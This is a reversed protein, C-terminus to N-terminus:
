WPKLDFNSSKSVVTGPKRNMTEVLKVSWQDVRKEAFGYWNFQDVSVLTFPENQRDAFKALTEGTRGDKLRIEISVYSPNTQNLATAALGYLPIYGAAKLLVKNPTLETLAMEVRLTDFSQTNYSIKFRKKPDTIFANSFASRTYMALKKIDKQIEGTRGLEQWENSELVHSTDVPAIAVKKYKQWNVGPKIWGMEFPLDGRITMNTQDMFGSPKPDAALAPSLFCVAILLPLTKPM